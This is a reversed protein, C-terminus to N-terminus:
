KQFTVVIVVTIVPVLTVIIVEIVLTKINDYEM